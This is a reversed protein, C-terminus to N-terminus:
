YNGCSEYQVTTLYPSCTVEALQLSASHVYKSSFLMYQQLSLDNILIIDVM